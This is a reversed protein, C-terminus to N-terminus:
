PLPIDLEIGFHDSPHTLKPSEEPQLESPPILAEIAVTNQFVREIRIEDATALNKVFVHDLLLDPSNDSADEEILVLNETVCYTCPLQERSPDVFGVDL